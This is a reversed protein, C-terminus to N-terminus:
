HGCQTSVPLPSSVHLCYIGLPFDICCSGALLEIPWITSYASLRWLLGGTQINRIVAPCNMDLLSDTWFGPRPDRFMCQSYIRLVCFCYGAGLYLGEKTQRVASWLKSYSKFSFLSLTWSNQFITEDYKALLIQCLEKFSNRRPHSQAPNPRPAASLINFNSRISLSLHVVATLFLM